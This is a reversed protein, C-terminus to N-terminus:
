KLSKLDELKRYLMLGYDMSDKYEKGGFAKKALELSLLDLEYAMANLTKSYECVCKFYKNHQHTSAYQLKEFHSMKKFTYFDMKESM